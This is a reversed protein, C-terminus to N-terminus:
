DNKDGKEIDEKSKKDKIQELADTLIPPIKIGISGINELISITENAILYFIVVERIPIDIVMQAMNAVVVLLFLAVKKIIGKIGIKSSITKNHWACLVGSIYDIIVTGLFIKLAFDFGGVYYAIVGTVSAVVGQLWYDRM